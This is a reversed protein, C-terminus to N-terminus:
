ELINIITEKFLKNLNLTTDQNFEKFLAIHNLIIEDNKKAKIEEFEQFKIINFLQLIQDDQSTSNNAAKLYNGNILFLDAEGKDAIKNFYTIYSQNSSGILVAKVDFTILDSAKVCNLGKPNNLVFIMKAHDENTNKLGTVTFHFKKNINHEYQISNACSPKAFQNGNM